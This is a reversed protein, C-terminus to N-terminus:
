FYGIDRLVPAAIMEDVPEPTYIRPTAWYDLLEQLRQEEVSPLADQEDPDASLDYETASDAAAIWVVKTCGSTASAAEFPPGTNLGSAFVTRDDDVDADLLDLGELDGPVELGLGSLATPLLDIQCVQSSDRLGREVGPGSIILPVNVIEEYFTRGHGVYGHELFEEGHDATVVVMTEGAVGRDRLCALLRGIQSDTWAIEGDYLAMCADVDGANAVAGGPTFSWYSGCDAEGAGFLTDDPAPPDYPDHVDFFHVVLFFPSDSEEGELWDIAMDVTEEARGHGHDHCDFTDFGRHFEYLESLLFVNMFAATSYGRSKLLMTLTPMAPDMGYSQGTVVNLRAGHERPTLGSFISATAPLTWSSQADFDRWVTGEEALSDLVPSTDRSYGYCGLHDARVTDMVILVLNPRGPKGGCSIM